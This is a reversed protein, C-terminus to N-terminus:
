IHALLHNYFTINKLHLIITYKAIEAIEYGAEIIEKGAAVAATILLRPRGPPRVEAEFAEFLEQLGCFSWLHCDSSRHENVYNLINM